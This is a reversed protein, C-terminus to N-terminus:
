LIYADPTQSQNKMREEIEANLRKRMLNLRLEEEVALMEDYDVEPAKATPTDAIMDPKVPPVQVVRRSPLNKKARPAPKAPEPRSSVSVTDAPVPPNAPKSEPVVEVIMEPSEAPHPRNFVTLAIAICAAAASAYWFIGAPRRRGAAIRDEEGPAELMALVAKGGADPEKGDFSRLLVALEREEALSTEGSLFKRMLTDKDNM